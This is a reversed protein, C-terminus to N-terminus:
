SLSLHKGVKGLGVAWWAMAATATLSLDFMLLVSAEKAQAYRSRVSDFAALAVHQGNGVCLSM